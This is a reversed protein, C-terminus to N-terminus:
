IWVRALFFFVNSKCYLFYSMLNLCLMVERVIVTEDEDIKNNEGSAENSGVGFGFSFGKADEKEKKEDKKAFVEQKMWFSREKGVEPMPTEKVVEDATIDEEDSEPLLTKRTQNKSVEFQKHDDRYYFLAINLQHLFAFFPM